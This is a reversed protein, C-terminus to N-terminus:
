RRGANIMEVLDNAEELSFEGSIETSGSGIADNVKPASYVEGNMTILIRKGINESTMKYWKDAGSETMILSIIANDNGGSFGASTRAIDRGTIRIKRGKTIKAAFLEYGKTSSNPYTEEPIASWMFRLDDPFLKAIKKSHLISDVTNKYKEEVLGLSYDNSYPLIDPLGSKYKGIFEESQSIVEARHWAYAFEEPAYSELFELKGKKVPLKSETKDGCSFLVFGLLVILVNKRM